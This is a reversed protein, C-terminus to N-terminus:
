CPRSSPARMADQVPLFERWFVERALGVVHERHARCMWAEWEWSRARAGGSPFRSPRWRGEGTKLNTVCPTAPFPLTPTDASMAFMDYPEGLFDRAHIRRVPHSAASGRRTRTSSPFYTRGLGVYPRNAFRHFPEDRPVRQFTPSNDPINDSPRRRLLVGPPPEVKEASHAVPWCWSFTMGRSLPFGATVRSSANGPNGGESSHCPREEVRCGAAQSDRRCSIRLVLM